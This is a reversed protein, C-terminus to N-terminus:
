RSLVVPIPAPILRNRRSGRWPTRWRYQASFMSRRPARRADACPPSASNRDATHFGAHAVDCTDVLNADARQGARHHGGCHHKWGFGIDGADVVRLAQFRVHPRRKRELNARLRGADPDPHCRDGFDIADVDVVSPEERHAAGDLSQRPTRLVHQDVRARNGPDLNGRFMKLLPSPMLKVIAAAEIM